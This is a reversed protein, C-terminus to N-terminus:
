GSKVEIIENLCTTYRFSLREQRMQWRRQQNEAALRVKYAGVKKNAKDIAAMLPKHRPDSHEFLRLQANIEPTLDMVIVGAKKYQYGEHFIRKLADAAFYALEIGSNTAFPLRLVTNRAYQPLDDRFGNTHIFVQIVNCEARQRRLKEACSVAFTVVQQELEKHKTLMQEFSRTTAISKKATTNEIEITPVGCLEQKTRLLVVSFKKQLIDDDLRSFDFAQQIGAERLKKGIRRGIGWVDEIQLWKLAKIRKEETDILYIGGTKEPFKKAIRNAVKALTKSAGIGISIPIGTGQTVKQQLRIFTEVLDFYKTSPLYVFAEDISYVEVHEVCDAILAMVRASMDGYLAFNSSFVQVDNKTFVEQFQFAAAGMPVGLDKVEQSRAIVCGDNNSLIAVPKGILKPNFVRECSAYFNNCDILAYM